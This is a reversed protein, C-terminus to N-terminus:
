TKILPLIEIRVPNMGRQSLDAVGIHSGMLALLQEDGIIISDFTKKNDLRDFIKV